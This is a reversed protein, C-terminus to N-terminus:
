IVINCFLQHKFFAYKMNDCYISSSSNWHGQKECIIDTLPCYSLFINKEYIDKLFSPKLAFSIRDGNYNISGLSMVRKFLLQYARIKLITWSM